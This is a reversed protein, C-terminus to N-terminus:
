VKQSKKEWINYFFCYFQRKVFVRCIKRCLKENCRHIVKSISNFVPLQNHEGYEVPEQAKHMINDVLQQYVQAYSELATYFITSKKKGSFTKGLTRLPNKVTPYQQFATKGLRHMFLVAERSPLTNGCDYGLM